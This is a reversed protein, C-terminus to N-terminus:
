NWFFMYPMTYGINNIKLRILYQIGTVFVLLFLVAMRKNDSRIGRYVINPLLIIIYPGFLAAMRTAASVNFGVCYFFMEAIFMWIGIAEREIIIKRREIDVLLVVFLFLFLHFAGVLIGEYNSTTGLLYKGVRYPLIRVLLSITLPFVAGMVIALLLIRKINRVSIHIKNIIWYFPFFAISSLHVMSAIFM